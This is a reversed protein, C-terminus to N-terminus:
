RSVEGIALGKSLMLEAERLKAIIQEPTFQKSGM